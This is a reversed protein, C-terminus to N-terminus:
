FRNLSVDLTHLNTLISVDLVGGILNNSLNLYQLSWCRKLDAQLEGSISNASLDLHILRTLRSFNGFCPGSINSSSLDLHNVHGAPDCGVGEWHCPSADSESWSWGEYVGRNIPNHAQLFNRLELLVEKDSRSAGGAGRSSAEAETEEGAEMETEAEPTAAPAARDPSATSPADFNAGSRALRSSHLFPFM